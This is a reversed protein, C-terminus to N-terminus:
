AYWDYEHAPIFDRLRELETRKTACYLDVYAPGLYERMVSGNELALLAADINVPFTPDVFASVDRDAAQGPDLNQGIGHHVGALVAAIALYPNADAGAIRHAVTASSGGTAISLNAADSGYAWRRNRPVADKGSFRRFANVSPAFLALAEGMLAQLGGVAFRVLDSGADV